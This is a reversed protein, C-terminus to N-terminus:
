TLLRYLRLPWALAREFATMAVKEASWGADWYGLAFFVAIALTGFAYAIGLVILGYKLM